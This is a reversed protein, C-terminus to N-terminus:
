VLTWFIFLRLCHQTHNSISVCMIFTVGVPVACVVFFSYQKNRVEWIEFTVSPDFNKSVPLATHDGPFVVVHDGFM